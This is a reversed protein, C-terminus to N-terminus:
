HVSGSDDLVLLAGDTVLRAPVVATVHKPIAEGLFIPALERFQEASQPQPLLYLSTGLRVLWHEPGDAAERFTPRLAVRDRFVPEVAADPVVHHLAREFMFYRGVLPGGRNCWAVFAAGTAEAQENTPDEPELVQEPELEQELELGEEPEPEGEPAENAELQTKLRVNEERLTLLEENNARARKAFIRARKLLNDHEETLERLSQALDDRQEHAPLAKMGRGSAPPLPAPKTLTGQTRQRQSDKKVIYVVVAVVAILVLYEM